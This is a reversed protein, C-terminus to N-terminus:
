RHSRKLPLIFDLGTNIGFTHRARGQQSPFFALTPAMQAYFRKLFRAQFGVKWYLAPQNLRPYLVVSGDQRQRINGYAWTFEFFPYINLALFRKTEMSSKKFLGLFPPPTITDVELLRDRNKMFLYFRAFGGVEHWHFHPSVNGGRWGYTYTAGIALFRTPFYGIRPDIQMQSEILKQNTLPERYYAVFGGSSTGIFISNGSIYRSSTLPITDQGLLFKPYFVMLLILFKLVTAKMYQSIRVGM